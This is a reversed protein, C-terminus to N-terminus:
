LLLSENRKVSVKSAHTGKPVTTLQQVNHKVVNGVKGHQQDRVQQLVLSQRGGEGLLAPGRHAQDGGLQAQPEQPLGAGSLLAQRERHLHAEQPAQRFLIPHNTEQKRLM